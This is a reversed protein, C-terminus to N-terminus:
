SLPPPATSHWSPRGANADALAHRYILFAVRAVRARRGSVPNHCSLRSTEPKFRERSVRGRSRANAAAEKSSGTSALFPSPLSESAITVHSRQSDPECSTADAGDALMARPLAGALLTLAVLLFPIPQRMAQAM